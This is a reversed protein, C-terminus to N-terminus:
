DCDIDLPNWEGNIYVFLGFKGTDYARQSRNVGTTDDADELMEQPDSADAPNLRWIKFTFHTAGTKGNPSAATIASTLVGPVIDLSPIHLLPGPQFINRNGNVARVVDVIANHTAAQPVFSEGSVVHRLPDGTM